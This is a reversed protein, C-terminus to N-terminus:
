VVQVPIALGKKLKIVLTSIKSKTTLKKGGATVPFFVALHIQAVAIKWAKIAKAKSKGKPIISPIELLDSKRWIVSNTEKSVLM